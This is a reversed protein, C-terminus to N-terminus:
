RDLMSLIDQKSHVGVTTQAPEGNKFVILTPISMINYRAAIDPQEDVNVKGVMYRGDSENGIEDVIPSVMRCPGCWTAWFDVLVPKDSKLVKSEFNDDTVTVVAM